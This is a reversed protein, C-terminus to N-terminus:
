FSKKRHFRNKKRQHKLTWIALYLYIYMKIWIKQLSNQLTIQKTTIKKYNTPICVHLATAAPTIAIIIAIIINHYCLYVVRGRSGRFSFALFFHLAGLAILIFIIKNWTTDTVQSAETDIEFICQIIVLCRLFRSNIM